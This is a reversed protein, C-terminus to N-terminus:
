GEHCGGCCKSGEIRDHTGCSDCGANAEGVAVQALKYVESLIYGLDDIDPYDICNLIAELAEKYQLAQDCNCIDKDRLQM